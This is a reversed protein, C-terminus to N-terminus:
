GASNLRRTRCKKASGDAAEQDVFHFLSIGAHASGIGPGPGRVASGVRRELPRRDREHARGARCNRAPDKAAAPLDVKKRRLEVLLLEANGLIGTLPNNLEHRLVEGFDRQEDQLTEKEKMAEGPTGLNSKRDGKGKM